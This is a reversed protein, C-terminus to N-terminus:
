KCGLVPVVEREIGCPAAPLVLVAGSSVTFICTTCDRLRPVRSATCVMKRRPPRRPKKLDPFPSGHPFPAIHQRNLEPLSPHRLRCQGASMGGTYMSGAPAVRDVHQPGDGAAPSAPERAQKATITERRATVHM